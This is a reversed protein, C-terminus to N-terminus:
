GGTAAMPRQVAAASGKAVDFEHRAPKIAILDHIAADLSADDAWARLPAKLDTAVDHGLCAFLKGEASVRVRNCGDCFNATLPTIFGVVGGAQTRAYRAPGGTRMATDTLPFRQEIADRVAPMPVHQVSRDAGIEGIPMVEIFSISMDREHAFAVLDAAVEFNDQRLAVANLKVKIGHSQAAEIGALVKSLNGGRTIRAYEAPDFHDLSVNIREIGAAALGAAHKELQTGNTTLTLEDLAGSRRHRGLRAILEDVGRRVLPEGGTIRLKKVGLRIFASALRDLEDISLLRDNRAFKAHAPLCYHCRLDCRDTVSLRLYRIHRGYSDIMLIITGM